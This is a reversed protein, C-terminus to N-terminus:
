YDFKVAVTMNSLRRVILSAFAKEQLLAQSDYSEGVIVHQVVQFRDKL